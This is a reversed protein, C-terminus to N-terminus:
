IKTVVLFIYEPKLYMSTTTLLMIGRKTEIHFLSIYSKEIKQILHDCYKSLSLMEQEQVKVRFQRTNLPRM